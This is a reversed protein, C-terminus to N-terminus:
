ELILRLPINGRTAVAYPCNKEAEKILSQAASSEVGPIRIRMEVTLGFAPGVTPGLGVRSSILVDNVPVNLRRGAGMITSEFCAAFGAAFLQEPNTGAGGPGGQEKPVVLNVDLNGDSSRAHGSRGGNVSVEATYIVMRPVRFEANGEDGELVVTSDSSNSVLRTQTM